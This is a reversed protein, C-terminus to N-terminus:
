ARQHNLETEDIVDRVSEPTDVALDITDLGPEDVRLAPEVIETPRGGFVPADGPALDLADAFFDGFEILLDFVM